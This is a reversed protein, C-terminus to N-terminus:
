RRTPEWSAPAPWSRASTKPCAAAASVWVRTSANADSVRSDYGLADALLSVDAGAAECVESVANIFSIKTALFANASVKVLEATQLDTVLFPVGADLLPGYLERVAAEARISNDQVGLM